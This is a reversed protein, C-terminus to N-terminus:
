LELMQCISPKGYEAGGTLVELNPLIQARGQGHSHGCLVLLEREPHAQAAGVLVDGTAKCAFFPLWPDNPGPTKGEHWCAEAFPPVHTLVLIRRHPREFAMELSDSLHRAAQDGLAQLRPALETPHRLGVLDEILRHDNLLLTTGEVDGLRADGWSGHGVVLTETSLEFFSPADGPWILHPLEAVSARVIAHTEEISGYYYDHNGLVIFLPRPALRQHLLTLFAHLRNATAIDGTIAVADPNHSLLGAFFAELADPKAFELHIDTTWALKM